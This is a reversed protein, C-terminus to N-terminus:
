DLTNYEQEELNDHNNENELDFSKLMDKVAKHAREIIANIQPRNTTVQQQSPKLAMITVFKNSSVNSNTWTGMTYSLLNLDRTVHWGPTIFCIRSPHQQIILPKLLKMGVM